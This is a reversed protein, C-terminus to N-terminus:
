RMRNSNCVCQASHENRPQLVEIHLKHTPEGPIPLGFPAGRRCWGGTLGDEFSRDRLQKSRVAAGHWQPRTIRYIHGALVLRHSLFRMRHPVAVENAPDRAKLIQSYHCAHLLSAITQGVRPDLSVLSTEM